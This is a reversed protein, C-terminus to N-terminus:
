NLRAWGTYNWVIRPRGDEYVKDTHGGGGWGKSYTALCDKSGCQRGEFKEFERRNRSSGNRGSVFKDGMEDRNALTEYLKFYSRSSL